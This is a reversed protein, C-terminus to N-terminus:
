LLLQCLPSPYLNPLAKVNCRVKICMSAEGFPTQFASLQFSILNIEWTGNQIFKKFMFLNGDNGDCNTLSSTNYRHRARCHYTVHLCWYSLPTVRQSFFPLTCPLKHCELRRTRIKCSTSHYMRSLHAAVPHKPPYKKPASSTAQTMMFLPSIAQARM